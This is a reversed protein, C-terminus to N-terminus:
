AHSTITATCHHVNIGISARFTSEKEMRRYFYHHKFLHCIDPDIIVCLVNEPCSISVTYRVDFRWAASINFDAPSVIELYPDTNLITFCITKLSPKALHRSPMSICTKQSCPRYWLPFALNMKAPISLCCNIALKTIATICLRYM